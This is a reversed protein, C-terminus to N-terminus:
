AYRTWKLYCYSDRLYRAATSPSSLRPISNSGAKWGYPNEFKVFELSSCRNFADKEISIVSNPITISTLSECGSFANKGIFRANQSLLIRTLNSCGAFASDGISIVSNSITVDTLDKCCAFVGDGISEVNNPITIRALSSCKYFSHEGISKVSNPITIRTLSECGSFAYSCIIKINSNITCNIIDKNIAEVLVLYPNYNNGLYKANDYINYQLSSCGSFAYSRISTVSNPITISTLSSCDEFAYWGISTVSNGITISTLSSCGSFAFAGISTAKTITVKKLSKPVYKSNETSESAGFLYGLFTDKTKSRGVFPLTIEQLNNCGGFASDGISTVSDPINISTLNDCELFAKAKIEKVPKNKYTSPIVVKSDVCSGIGLVIYYTEDGSLEYALGESYFETNNGNGKGCAVFLFMCPVILMLLLILKLKNRM